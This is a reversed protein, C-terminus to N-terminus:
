ELDMDSDSDSDIPRYEGESDSTDSDEGLQIIIRDVVKDMLGELEWM